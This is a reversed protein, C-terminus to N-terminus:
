AGAEPRQIRVFKRLNEHLQIEPDASLNPKQIPAMAIPISARKM